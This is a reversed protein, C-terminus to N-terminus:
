LGRNDYEDWLAQEIESMDSDTLPGIIEPPDILSWSLEPWEPPTERDGPLREGEFEASVEVKHLDGDLGRIEVTTTLKRINPATM